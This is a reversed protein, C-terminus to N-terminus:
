VASYFIKGFKDVQQKLRPQEITDYNEVDFMFPLPLEELEHLIRGTLDLNLDGWLVLDVDSNNEFHGTARSGFIKVTHVEPHRQFVECIMKVAEPSLGFEEIGSNKREAM